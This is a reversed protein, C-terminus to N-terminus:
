VTTAYSTISKVATGTANTFLYEGNPAAERGHTIVSHLVMASARGAMMSEMENRMATKGSIKKGGVMDWVIDDSVHDLVFDIDGEAFASTRYYGMLIRLLGNAPLVGAIRPYRFM